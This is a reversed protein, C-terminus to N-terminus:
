ETRLAVMPDVRTARLAPIWSATGGVLLLTLIAVSIVVPDTPSEDYLLAGMVHSGALVLASGVLVGFGTVLLGNWLIMKRVQRREAGLAMRVGIEQTRRNVMYALVGYLGFATLILALVGYATFMTTGLRWPKLQPAISAELPTVEVFPLTPEVSIIAHRIDPILQEPSGTTRVLMATPARDSPLQALPVYFEADHLQLVSWRPADKVVGVVTACDHRNDVIVCQGLASDDPWLARALTQNVIVVNAAGARDRQTFGRGRVVPLGVTAFYESTVAFQYPVGGPFERPTLRDRLTLSGGFGSGFPSGQALSVSRVGPIHQVPEAIRQYLGEAKDQGLRTGHFDLTVSLVHRPELGLDVGELHRLSQVFVGAGVLLVLSL